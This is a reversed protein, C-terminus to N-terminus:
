KVERISNAFDLLHAVTFGYTVQGPAVAHTYRTAKRHAITLIEDDSLVMEGADPIHDQQAVPQASQWLKLYDSYWVFSGNTAPIIEPSKGLFTQWGFREVAGGTEDGPNTRGVGQAPQAVPQASQLMDAAENLADAVENAETNAIALLRRILEAREGQHAPQPAPTDYVPLTGFLKCIPQAQPAADFTCDHFGPKPASKTGENIFTGDQAQPAPAAALAAMYGLKFDAVSNKTVFLRMAKVGKVLQDDTPEMQQAQPAPAATDGFVLPRTKAKPNHGYALFWADLDQNYEYWAVPQQEGQQALASRMLDYATGRSVQLAGAIIDAIDPAEQLTTM